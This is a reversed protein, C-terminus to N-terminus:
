KYILYPARQSQFREVDTRWMTHIEAATYGQEVMDKAYSAGLQYNFEEGVFFEERNESAVYAEIVGSLDIQGNETVVAVEVALGRAMLQLAKGCECEGDYNVCPVVTLLCKAGGTLWGEGNIMRAAEGLTMGYVLPLPLVEGSTSYRSEPIPGDVSRGGPLTRDLVVVPVELDACVGMLLYLSTLAEGRVGSSELDCLIVDCAFVDNAKPASHITKITIGLHSERGKTVTGDGRFGDAPAFIVTVDVGNALLTDVLHARGVRSAHNTLVGVRRGALLHGYEALREAGVIVREGVEAMAFSLSFLSLIVLFLRKM